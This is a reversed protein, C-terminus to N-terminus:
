FGARRARSKGSRANGASARGAKAKGGAAKGSPSKGMGPKSGEPKVSKSQGTPSKGKIPKASHTKDAGPKGRRSKGAYPNESRRLVFRIPIGPMDFADRLGNVLYRQYSDAMAEPLNCFLNFTPPRSKAQSMYRLKLRRGKVLPPLHADEMAQLWRNLAPTPIRRSWIDVMEIATDLLRELGKGTKASLPIVPLGRSQPLSIELRRELKALAAKTDEVLDWKNVALVLARGEEEVQRAIALDQKELLDTSDLVLIVVEAFQIARKTDEGSLWELKDVVKARRRLGATDVLRLARGRHNWEVAIADRTIGAEPGTLLRDEGILRNVLTSKGVNPRGVIALQIARPGREAPEASDEDSAAAEPADEQEPRGAEAKAHILPALADYLDGMGEGHEASLPLPEGFGLRFAEMRGAEGGRGECKNAVLLVRAESKRLARAFSQDLATLGERADVVLLVADAAAVAQETQARMRALLAEGQVDEFGATDVVTFVLDALRAQGERRDRTVGPTDDVIAQRKGVLRNFLTSKGVNPRGVIALTFAM